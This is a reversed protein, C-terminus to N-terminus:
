YYIIIGGRHGGEGKVWPEGGRGGAGFGQKYSHSKSVIQSPNPETYRLVPASAGEQSSADDGKSEALTAFINKINGTYSPIQGGSGDKNGGYVTIGGSNGQASSKIILNEGSEGADSGPPCYIELMSTSIFSRLDVLWVGVAGSGGGKGSSFVGGRKGGAGAGCAELIAFSINGLAVTEGAFTYYLNGDNRYFRLYNLLIHSTSTGSFVGLAHGQTSYPQTGKKPWKIKTGKRSIRYENYQDSLFTHASPKLIITDRQYLTEGDIKLASNHNIEQVCTTAVREDGLHIANATESNNIVDIISM